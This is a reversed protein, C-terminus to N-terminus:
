EDTKGASFKQPKWCALLLALIFRRAGSIGVKRKGNHINEVVLM